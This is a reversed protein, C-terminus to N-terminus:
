SLWLRINLSIRRHPSTPLIPTTGHSITSAQFLLMDGEAAPVITDPAHLWLQGGHSIPPVEIVILIQADGAADKHEPIFESASFVNIWQATRAIPIGTVDSILEMPLADCVKFPPGNLSERWSTPTSDGAVWVGLPSNRVFKKCIGIVDPAICGRLLTWRNILYNKRHVLVNM